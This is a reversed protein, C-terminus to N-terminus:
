SFGLSLTKRLVAAHRYSTFKSFCVIGCSNTPIEHNNVCPAQNLSFGINLNDGLLQRKKIRKSFLLCNVRFSEKAKKFFIKKELYKLVKKADFIKAFLEM